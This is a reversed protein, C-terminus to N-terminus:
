DATPKGSDAQLWRVEGAVIRKVGMSTQVLLAGTDDIGATTGREPGAAGEWEVRTGDASPSARRWAQLIGDAEGTRLRGYSSAVGVLLEELLGAGDVDRGLEEGLSTARGQVDNPHLARRVNVGVGLIITQTSTGIGLGEALIGALKRRSVIVDNPWKLEPTLGSVREIAHRVGTAAALTLLSLGPMMQVPPRLVFSLYLGCGPPSSWCRGRRGRGATQTGAVVVLGEPVGAVAAAGAVEMTSSVSDYWRVALPFVEIRAGAARVAPEIESPIAVNSQSSRWVSM